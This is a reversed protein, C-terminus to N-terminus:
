RGEGRGSPEKVEAVLHLDLGDATQEAVLNYDEVILLLKVAVLRRGSALTYPSNTAVVIGKADQFDRLAGAVLGAKSGLEALEASTWTRKSDNPMTATTSPQSNTSEEKATAAVLGFKTSGDLTAAKSGAGSETKMPQTNEM